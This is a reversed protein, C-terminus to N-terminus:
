FSVLAARAITITTCGIAIGTALVLGDFGANTGIVWVTAVDIPVVETDVFHLAEFAANADHGVDASISNTAFRLGTLRAGVITALTLAATTAGMVIDSAGVRLACLENASHVGIAALVGPIILTGLLGQLITRYTFPLERVAAIGDTEKLFVTSGARLIATRTGETAVSVATVVLVAHTAGIVAAGAVGVTALDVTSLSTIIPVAGIDNALRVRIAAIVVPIVDAGVLSYGPARNTAAVNRDAPVALAAGSFGTTVARRVAPHARRFATVTFTIAVLIAGGTGVVAAGATAVINAICFKALIAHAAFTVTPWTFTVTALAVTAGSTGGRGTLIQHAGLVIEAAVIGPVVETCTRCLFQTYTAHVNAIAASGVVAGATLVLRHLVADTCEIIPTAVILPIPNAHALGLHVAPGVAVQGAEAAVIGAAIAFIADGTFSVAVGAAAVTNAISVKTLIAGGAFGIAIAGDSSGTRITALVVVVRGKRAM